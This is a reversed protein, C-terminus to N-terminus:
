RASYFEQLQRNLEEQIRDLGNARLASLYQPITVTPDAVGSQLVQMFENTVSAVAAREILVNEDNFTFGLFNTGIGAANYARFRELYGVGETDLPTLAFLNGMGFRWTSYRDRGGPLRTITGDSNRTFHTGEVGEALIDALITDSYWANMFQVAAAPNRSYISVGFGSGASSISSVIPNSIRPFRADIGRTSSAESTHGYAYVRISFLYEAANTQAIFADVAQGPISTRPDIFGRQYFYHLRELVRVYEPTEVTITPFHGRPEAPNYPDFAFHFVDVGTIDMDMHSFFRAWNGGEHALPFFTPGMLDKAAQMADVFVPDFIVDYNLGNMDFIDDFNFGLQSLLTNNVDWVYMQAYDKYGPIGYVGFGQPGDMTFGGWLTDPVIRMMDQGYRALLNNSPDDLRRFNGRRANTWFNLGWSGAWVIDVSTDGTDLAMQAPEGMAWGGTWVPNIVVNVGLELLRANAAAIVDSDDTASGGMFWVSIETPPQNTTGGHPQGDDNNNGCGAVLALIAIMMVSLLLFKKM